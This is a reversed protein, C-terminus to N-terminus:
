EVHTCSASSITVGKDGVSQDTLLNCLDWGKAAADEEGEAELSVTLTVVYEDM